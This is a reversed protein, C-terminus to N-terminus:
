GYWAPVTIWVQGRERLADGAARADQERLFLGYVTPGAGTVDARFAGLKGLERSLPSSALDNAPLPGLDAPRRVRIMGDVLSARQEDFYQGGDRADFAEYVSRTSPKATGHPLVLVIWYDQPLEVRRLETGHGTAFQPGSTLFYSETRSPEHRLAFTRVQAQSEVPHPREVDTRSRRARDTLHRRCQGLRQVSRTWNHRSLEPQAVHAM